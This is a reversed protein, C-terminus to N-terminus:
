NITGLDISNSTKMDTSNLTGFDVSFSTYINKSNSAVM